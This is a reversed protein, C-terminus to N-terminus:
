VVCIINFINNNYVVHTPDMRNAFKNSLKGFPNDTMELPTRFDNYPSQLYIYTNIYMLYKGKM